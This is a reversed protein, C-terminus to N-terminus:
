DQAGGESDPTGAPDAHGGAGDSEAGQQEGGNKQDTEAGLVKGDASVQVDVSASNSDTFTVDYVARGNEDGLSASQFTLGQGSYPATLRIYATAAQQAQASSVSGPPLTVPADQENGDPVEQDKTPATQAPQSQAPLTQTQSRLSHAGVLGTTLGGLLVGVSLLTAAGSGVLVKRVM